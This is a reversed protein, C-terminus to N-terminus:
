LLRVMEARVMDKKYHYKKGSLRRDMLSEKSTSQDNSTPIFPINDSLVTVAYMMGIDRKTLGDYIANNFGKVGGMLGSLTSHLDTLVATQEYKSRKM